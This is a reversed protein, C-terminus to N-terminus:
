KIRLIMHIKIYTNIENLHEDIAGYFDIINDINIM